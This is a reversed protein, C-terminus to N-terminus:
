YLNVDVDAISNGGISTIWGTLIYKTESLPPNGRHTHTFSGPWLLGMNRKPKFRTKQYLFETEGGEQVDNLYIMWAFLRNRVTWNSNESHWAHYGGGVETKQITISGNLYSEKLNLGFSFDKVYPILLKNYIEVNIEECLKDWFPDLPFQSDNRIESKRPQWFEKRPVVSNVSPLKSVDHNDVLNLLFNIQGETLINESTKIFNNPYDNRM